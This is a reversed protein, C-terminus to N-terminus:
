KFTIKLISRWFLRTFFNNTSFPNVFNPFKKKSFIELIPKIEDSVIMLEQTAYLKNWFKRHQPYLKRNKDTDDVLMHRHIVIGKSYFILEIRDTKKNNKDYRFVCIM